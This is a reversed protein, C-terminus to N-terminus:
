AFRPKNIKQLKEKIKVTIAGAAKSNQLTPMITEFQHVQEREINNSVKGLM